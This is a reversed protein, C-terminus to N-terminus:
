ASVLCLSSRRWSRRRWTPSFIVWPRNTVGSMRAPARAVTAARTVTFAAMASYIRRVPPWRPPISSLGTWFIIPFPRITGPTAGNARPPPLDTSTPPCIPTSLGLKLPNPFYWSVIFSVSMKGGPALTRTRRLAGVLRSTDGFVKLESSDAAPTDLCADPSKDGTVQAVAEADDGMLALAMNGVDSQDQVALLNDPADSLAFDDVLIHGWPGSSQDVVQLQATRGILEKVNWSAARLVEDDRGTATRAVKGDVLLNVCERQPDKGGGVLFLLYPRSIVFSDSTLTGTPKDSGNFFSDIM